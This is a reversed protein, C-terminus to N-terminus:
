HKKNSSTRTRCNKEVNKKSNNKTPYWKSDIHYENKLTEWSKFNCNENVVNSVFNINKNKYTEIANSEM